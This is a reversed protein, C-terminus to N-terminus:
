DKQSLFERAIRAREVLMAKEEQQKQLIRAQAKQTLLQEVATLDIAEFGATHEFKATTFNYSAVHYYRSVHIHEESLGFWKKVIKTYSKNIHIEIGNEMYDWGDSRHCEVDLRDIEGRYYLECVELAHQKTLAM